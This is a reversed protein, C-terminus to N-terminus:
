KQCGNAAQRDLEKKCAEESNARAKILHSYFGGDERGKTYCSAKCDYSDKDRREVLICEATGAKRECTDAGLLM